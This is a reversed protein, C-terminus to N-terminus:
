RWVDKADRPATDTGEACNDCCLVPQDFEDVASAEVEDLVAGCHTCTSM